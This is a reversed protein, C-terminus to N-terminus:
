RLKGNGDMKGIRKVTDPHGNGVIFHRKVRVNFRQNLHGAFLCPEVFWRWLWFRFQMHMGVNYGVGVRHAANLLVIAAEANLKPLEKMETAANVIIYPENLGGHWRRVNQANEFRV